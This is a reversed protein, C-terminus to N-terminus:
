NFKKLIDKMVDKHVMFTLMKLKIYDDRYFYYGKFKGHRSSRASDKILFWDHDGIRTYGVLHVGHDDTSTKNYFRFERSDQNIYEQPIDFDPIIAADEFGNYGPESVDGGIAVTYGNKVAKKIIGYWEDLPVNYYDASHWWNDPVKYEGKTYFPISLTSMVSVYDDPNLKLVNHLFELPTMRKGHYEFSTPPAGMYKNLIIKVTAIVEQEDWYNHTNIYRLYNKIEEFMRTHDYREDDGVLGSYVKKPVVGYKKWIRTVANAESGQGVESDGREQVYRRVKELYEYYVTHMESLKIKQGTLRAVESELFSTTSFCWCTGTRYQPVPPFHFASKFVEPSAPKKVDVFDFRLIKAAKREEEKRKKQRLRIAATISDRQAKEKKAKESMEKLVPDYYRKVYKVKNIQALSVTGLLGGLYLSVLIILTKRM